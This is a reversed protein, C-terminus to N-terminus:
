GGEDRRIDRLVEAIRAESMGSKRLAKAALDDKSASARARPKPTEARAAPAAVRAAAAEAAPQQQIARMAMQQGFTERPSSRQPSPAAEPRKAAVLDATIPTRGPPPAPQTSAPQLWPPPEAAPRSVRPGDASAAAAFPIMAGRAASAHEDRSLGQTEKLNRIAKCLAPARNVAAFIEEKPPIEDNAAGFKVHIALGECRRLLSETPSSPVAVDGRLVVHAVLRETDIALTDWSLAFGTVSEVSAASGCAVLARARLTPLQMQVRPLARSVGDVLVWEGGLLYPVQQDRPASLFAGWDVDDPIPSVVAALGRRTAEDLRDRRAPWSIPIPGLGGPETNSPRGHVDLLFVSPSRSGIPNSPMGEGGLARSWGIPASAVPAHAGDARPPAVALIAKRLLAANGRYVAFRVPLADAPQEGLTRARGVLTVDCAPKRPALDNAASIAGMPADRDPEDECAIPPAAVVRGTSLDVALKAIVTVRLEQRAGLSFLRAGLTAHANPVVHLHPIESM